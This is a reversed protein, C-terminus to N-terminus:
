RSRKGLSSWTSLDYVGSDLKAKLNKLMNSDTNLNKECEKKAQLAEDQYEKNYSNALSEKFIRDTEISQEKWYARSETLEKIKSELKLRADTLGDACYIPDCFFPALTTYLVFIIYIVAIIALLIMFVSFLRKPWKNAMKLEKGLM